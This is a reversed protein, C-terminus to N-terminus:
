HNSRIQEIINQVELPPTEQDTFWHLLQQDPYSLLRVFDVQQSATLGAYRMELFDGLLIDLELLGRRCQWRLRQWDVPTPSEPLSTHDKHM